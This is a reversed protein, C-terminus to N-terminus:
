KFFMALKNMKNCKDLYNMTETEKFIENEILNTTYQITIYQFTLNFISKLPSVFFIVNKKKFRLQDRFKWFTEV